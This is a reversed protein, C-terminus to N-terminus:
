IFTNGIQCCFLPGNGFSDLHSPDTALEWSLLWWVGPINLPSVYLFSTTSQKWRMASFVICTVQGIKKALNDKTLIANHEILWLWIKIKLPLKAKWILNYQAGVENICLQDYM